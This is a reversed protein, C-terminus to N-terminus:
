SVPNSRFCVYTVVVGRIIRQLARGQEEVKQIIYNGETYCVSGRTLQQGPLHCQTDGPPRTVLVGFPVCRYQIYTLTLAM